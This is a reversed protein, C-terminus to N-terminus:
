NTSFMCSSNSRDLWASLFIPLYEKTIARKALLEYKFYM